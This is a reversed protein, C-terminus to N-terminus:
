AAGNRLRWRRINVSRESRGLLTAAERVSMTPILADEEATWYRHMSRARMTPPRTWAAVALAAERKRDLALIADGYLWQAYLAAPDATIMVNMVGDRKNPRATRVVGTVRLIEACVFEAIPMSATVISLFPMGNAIFGVSGDADYLGRLYDRHSFPEAPPAITASKRGTRLGAELFEKRAALGCLTLTACEFVPAFNTSRTRFTLSTRWPLVKQM